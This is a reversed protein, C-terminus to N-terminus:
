GKFYFELFCAIIGVFLGVFLSLLLTGPWSFYMKEQWFDGTKLEYSRNRDIERLKSSALTEFSKYFAVSDKPNKSWFRVKVLAPGVKYNRFDVAPFRKKLTRRFSKESLQFNLMDSVIDLRKLIFFNNYDLDFGKIRSDLPPIRLFVSFDGKYPRPAFVLFLLGLLLFSGTALLFSRKGGSIVKIFDKLSM